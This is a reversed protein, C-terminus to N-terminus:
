SNTAHGPRGSLEYFQSSLWFYYYFNILDEQLPQLHHQYHHWRYRAESYIPMTVQHYSPTQIVDKRKRAHVDFRLVADDWPM